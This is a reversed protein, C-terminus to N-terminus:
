NSTRSKLSTCSGRIQTVAGVVSLFQRTRKCEFSRRYGKFRHYVITQCVCRSSNKRFTVSHCCGSRRLASIKGHRDRERGRGSPATLEFYKFDAHLVATFDACDRYRDSPLSCSFLPHLAGSLFVGIPSNCTEIGKKQLFQSRNVVLKLVIFRKEIHLIM